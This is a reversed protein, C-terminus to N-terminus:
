QSPVSSSFTLKQSFNEQYYAVEDLLMSLDVDAQNIAANYKNEFRAYNTHLRKSAGHKLAFESAQHQAIKKQEVLSLKTLVAKQTDQILTKFDPKM